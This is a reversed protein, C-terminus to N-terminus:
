GLKQPIGFENQISHLVERTVSDRAKEFDMFLQRVTGNYEL